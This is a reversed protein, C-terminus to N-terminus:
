GVKVNTGLDTITASRVTKHLAAVASTIVAGNTTTDPTVELRLYRKRGCTDVFLTAVASATNDLTFNYTSNFTAFNSATTDDSELLRVPVNTSNTNAEAGAVLRIEVYNADAIDLNATRQTTAATIPALMVSETTVSPKM